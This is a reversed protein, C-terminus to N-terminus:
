LTKNNKILWNLVNKLITNKYIVKKDKSIVVWQLINDIKRLLIFNLNPKKGSQFIVQPENDFTHFGWIGSSKFLMLCDGPDLPHTIPQNLSIVKSLVTKNNLVDDLLYAFNFSNETIKEKSHIHSFLMDDYKQPRSLFGNARVTSIMKEKTLRLLWVNDVPKAKIFNMWLPQSDLDMDEDFENMDWGQMKGTQYEQWAYDSVQSHNNKIFLEIEQATPNPNTSKLLKIAANKLLQPVVTKKLLESNHYNKLYQLLEKELKTIENVFKIM